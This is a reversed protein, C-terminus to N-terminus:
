RSNREDPSPTFENRESDYRRDEDKLFRNNESSDDSGDRDSQNKALLVDICFSKKLPPSTTTFQHSPSTSIFNNNPHNQYGNFINNRQDPSPSMNEQSSPSGNSIFGISPSSKPTAVIPPSLNVSECEQNLHNIQPFHRTLNQAFQANIMTEVSITDSYTKYDM